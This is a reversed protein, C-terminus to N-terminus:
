EISLVVYGADEVAKKLASDAVEASLIIVATGAEASASAEEVGPIAELSTKVMNECHGCMMGDIKMNKEVSAAKAEDKHAAKIKKDRSADRIKFLNLRLANSVVCVSSLSMAAAGFMPNLLPGGFM